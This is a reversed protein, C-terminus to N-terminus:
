RSAPVTRGTKPKRLAEKKKTPKKEAKVPKQVPVKKMMETYITEMRALQRREIKLKATDKEKNLEIGLRMKRITGRQTLMDRRLDDLDM